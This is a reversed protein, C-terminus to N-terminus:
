GAVKKVSDIIRTRDAGIVTDVVKGGKFVLLTPISRINFKQAVGQHKDIDMKGVKVKGKFDVAIQEVVPAIAKCPGCWTAWFDVLVPIDSKLVENEFTGDELTVVDNSAM